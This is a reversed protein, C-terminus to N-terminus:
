TDYRKQALPELLYLKSKGIYELPVDKRQYRFFKRKGGSNSIILTGESDPKSVARIEKELRSFKRSLRKLEAVTKEMFEGKEYFSSKKSKILSKKCLM